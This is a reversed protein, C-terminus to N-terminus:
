VKRKRQRRVSQNDGIEAGTDADLDLAPCNVGNAVSRLSVGVEAWHSTALDCLMKRIYRKGLCHGRGRTIERLSAGPM